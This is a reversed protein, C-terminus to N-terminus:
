QRLIQLVDSFVSALPERSLFNEELLNLAAVTKERFLLATNRLYEAGAPWLLNVLLLFVLFSLLTLVQLRMRLMGKYFKKQPTGYDIRYGM